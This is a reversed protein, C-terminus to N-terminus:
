AARSSASTTSCTSGTRSPRCATRSRGSTAAASSRRARSTSRATTPASSSCTTASRPRALPRGPSGEAAPAPQLRVERGRVRQRPRRAILLLYQPCTEAWVPSGRHRAASVAELADRSSLHVFYVPAGAAEALRICRNTAEGELGPYRALGHGIPDTTGAAVLDAAIVDIVPGNEAHMLILGGNKATQLMARFIHDDPSFFVGPYATFLKFDPVGEAVLQDMEALSADNVDSMIMHFGYDLVANGEAKAMWVDLGERLAHGKPQVAFDIITTTGGHAAAKTGTEFTDKAFTGGFPLEFHTHGDIGGPVVYKGTADITEDAVLGALATEVPGSARRVVAEITGDVVLVDAEFSGDATVVLGNKILTRM